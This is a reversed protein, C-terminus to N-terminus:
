YKGSERKILISKPLFHTIPYFGIVQKVRNKPTTVAMMNKNTSSYLISDRSESINGKNGGGGGGGRGVVFDSKWEM